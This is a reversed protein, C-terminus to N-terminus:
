ANRNITIQEPDIRISWSEKPHAKRWRTLEDGATHRYLAPLVVHSNPTMREFVRKIQSKLSESRDGTAGSRPAIVGPLVQIADVNLPPAPPRRPQAPKQVPATQILAPNQAAAQARQWAIFRPGIAFAGGQVRRLLDHVIPTALSPTVNASAVVDFKQAIDKTSLEEEPNKAFFDLVRAPLSGPLPTYDPATLEFSM